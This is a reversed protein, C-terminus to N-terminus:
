CLTLRDTLHLNQFKFYDTVGKNLIDKAIIVRSVSESSLKKKSFVVTYHSEYTGFCKM